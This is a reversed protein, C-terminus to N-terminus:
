REAGGFHSTKEKLNGDLFPHIAARVLCSRRLRRDVRESCGRVIVSEPYDRARGTRKIRGSAVGVAGRGGM